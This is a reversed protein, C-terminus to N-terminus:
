VAGPPHLTVATAVTLPAGDAIVPVVFVQIPEDDVKDCAVDPPVHLLLLVATAVTFEPVPSTVPTVEPVDM